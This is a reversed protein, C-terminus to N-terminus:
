EGAAVVKRYHVEFQELLEAYGDMLDQVAEERVRNPDYTGKFQVSRASLSAQWVIDFGEGAIPAQLLSSGWVFLPLIGGAPPETVLGKKFDESHLILGANSLRQKSVQRIFDEVIEFERPETDIVVIREDPGMALVEIGEAASYEALLYIFMGLFVDAEETGSDRAFAAASRIVAEEPVFEFRAIRSGASGSALASAPLKVYSPRFKNSANGAEEIQAAIRSITSYTFLDTITVRGPYIKEIQSHMRFLLISDGGIDFFPEELGINALGLLDQWISLLKVETETGATTGLAKRETDATPEPLGRKDVKGNPTLPMQELAVFSSPVMYDPLLRAAFDRVDSLMGEEVGVLYACLQKSGSASQRDIVVAEKVDPHRLLAAEVEALELRMGRIKVQYDTRGIYELMGGPLWRVLDGTRYLMEGKVVSSPVFREETLEPSRYYGKALGVGGIYLEGILGEPLLNRSSDLVFLKTNPIPQGISVSQGADMTEPRLRHFAAIDTCETPGYTNVIEAHFRPSQIWSKLRNTHIPEGGLFVARLSALRIFGSDENFDVLPYFASPSCNLLTVQNRFIVDSMKNYNYLGPEFLTLTGGQILTCYFNKQALDFSSPAILLVNDEPGIGFETTFWHLLNVFAHTKIMVGKPKGTSGSTYLVYMLRNPDLRLEPNEDPWVDNQAISAIDFSETGAVEDVIAREENTGTLLVRTQSHDLLYAIREEPYDPDIPVYAAGAKLIGFIGVIMEPSRRAMIGVADDAGIGRSRLFNALRNAQRNLEGYSMIREGAILAPADPHMRVREEFMEHVSRESPYVKDTRNFAYLLKTEEEADLMRIASLRQDTGAALAEMIRKFHAAMRLVTDGRFLESDFLFQFALTETGSVSLTLPYNTSESISHGMIRFPQDKGAGQITQDLPYNEIVVISDFLSEKGIFGCLKKMETLPTMQFPERERLSRNVLRVLEAASVDEQLRIRLPLTNIFLGAMRDIGPIDPTRGSVTTGFLVDETNGYKNLLIAWATYIMAAPTCHLKRASEAVQDSLEKTLQLVYNRIPAVREKKRVEMPIPTKAEFEALEKRWFVEQTERNQERIFRIFQKYSTKPPQYSTTGEMLEQYASIFEKLLIGTSWGDLLIHHNTFVLAYSCTGLKCLAIRYPSKAIDIGVAKDKHLWEDLNAVTNQEVGVSLDSYSVSPRFQKLIVQIPHELKEWRFVTRLMENSMTVAAWAQVFTEWHVNGELRVVLQEFYLDGGDPETVYHFLLGEQMPSLALMDEVNHKDIKDTGAREM